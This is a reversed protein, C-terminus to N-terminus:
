FFAQIFYDKGESFYIGKIGKGLLTATGIIASARDHVSWTVHTSSFQTVEKAEDELLVCVSISLNSM